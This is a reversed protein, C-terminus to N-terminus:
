KQQLFIRSFGMNTSSNLSLLNVKVALKKM